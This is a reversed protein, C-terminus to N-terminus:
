YKIHEYYHFNIQYNQDYEVFASLSKITNQLFIHEGMSFM